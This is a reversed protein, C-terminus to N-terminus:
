VGDGGDVHEVVWLGKMKTLKLKGCDGADGVQLLTDLPKLTDVRIRDDDGACRQRHSVLGITFSDGQGHASEVLRLRPQLWESGVIEGALPSFPFDGQDDLRVILGLTQGAADGVQELESCLHSAMKGGPRQWAEVLCKGGATTADHL